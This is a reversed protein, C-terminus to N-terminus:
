RQDHYQPGAYSQPYHMSASLGFPDADLMPDNPDVYDGTGPHSTPPVMQPQEYQSQNAIHAHGPIAHASQYYEGHQQAAQQDFQNSYQGSLDEPSRIASTHSDDEPEEFGSRAAHSDYEQDLQEFHKQFPSPYFASASPPASGGSSGPHPLAQSGNSVNSIGSASSPYTSSPTPRHRRHQAAAPQQQAQYFAHNPQQSSRTFNQFTQGQPQALGASAPSTMAGQQLAPSRTSLQSPSSAHSSPTPHAMPSATSFGMDASAQGPALKPLFNQGSRRAQARQLTTRQLPPQQPLTTAGHMFGPGLVPSGTKMQLEAQVDIGKELLIRELLSNKYRLMLCEDAAQRHQQQLGGLNEENAKITAELQKIYETRRERFAAQAQRNRQKREESTAYIPKRGGKRKQPQAPEQPPEPGAEAEPTSEISSPTAEGPASEVKSAAAMDHDDDLSNDGM